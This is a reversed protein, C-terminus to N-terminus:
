ERLLAILTATGEDSHPLRVETGAPHLYVDLSDESIDIGVCQGTITGMTTAGGKHHPSPAWGITRLSPRTLPRTGPERAAELVLSIPASERGG